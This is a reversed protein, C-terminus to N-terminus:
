GVKQRNKCFSTGVFILVHMTCRASNHNQMNICIFTKPVLLHLVIHCILGGGGGGKRVSEPTMDCM